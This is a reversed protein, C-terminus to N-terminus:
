DNKGRNTVWYGVIAGLADAILDVRRNWDPERFGLWPEVVFSELVEWALGTLAAFFIVGPLKCHNRLAYGLWSWTLLHIITWPDLIYADVLHLDIWNQQMTDMRARSTRCDFGLTSKVDAAPHTLFLTM